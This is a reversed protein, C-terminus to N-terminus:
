QAADPSKGQTTPPTHSQALLRYANVLNTARPDNPDSTRQLEVIVLEIAYKLADRECEHAEPSRGKAKDDEVLHQLREMRDTLTHLCFAAPNRM